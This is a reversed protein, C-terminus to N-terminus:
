HIEKGLPILVGAEIGAAISLAMDRRFQIKAPLALVFRLAPLSAPRLELFLNARAEPFFFYLTTSTYVSIAAAGGLAAGGSIEGLGPIAGLVGRAQLMLSLSGSQFGRYAFGGSADSPASAAYDFGPNIALWGAIPIDFGIRGSGGWQLKPGFGQEESVGVNVGAGLSLSWAALSATTWASFILFVLIRPRLHANMEFSIYTGRAAFIL